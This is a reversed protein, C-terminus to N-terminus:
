TGVHENVQEVLITVSKGTVEAFGLSISFRGLIKSHHGHLSVIGPDLASILSVHGPLVGFEGDSGPMIVMHVDQFCFSSEPTIIEVKLLNDVHISSM